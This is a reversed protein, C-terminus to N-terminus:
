TLTVFTCYFSGGKVCKQIQKQLELFYQTKAQMIWWDVKMQTPTMVM